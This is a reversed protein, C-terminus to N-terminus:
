WTIYYMINYYLEYVVTPYLKFNCFSSTKVTVLVALCKFERNPQVNVVYQLCCAMKPMQGLMKREDFQHAIIIVNVALRDTDDSKLLKPIKECISWDHMFSLASPHNLYFWSVSFMGISVDVVYQLHKLELQCKTHSIM